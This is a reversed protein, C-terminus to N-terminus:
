YRKDLWAPEVFSAARRLFGGCVSGGDGGGGGQRLATRGDAARPRDRPRGHRAVTEFDIVAIPGM